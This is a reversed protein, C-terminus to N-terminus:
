SLSEFRGALLGWRILNMRPRPLFGYVFDVLTDAAHNAVPSLLLLELLGLFFCRNTPCVGHRAFLPYMLRHCVSYLTSRRTTEAPEILVLLLVPHLYWPSNFLTWLIFLVCFPVLYLETALWYTGLPVIPQGPSRGNSLLIEGNRFIVAITIVLLSIMVPWLDIELLDPDTSLFVTILEGLCQIGLRCNWEWSVTKWLFCTAQLENFVVLFCNLM